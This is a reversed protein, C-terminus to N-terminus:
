WQWIQVRAVSITMVQHRAVRCRYWMQRLRAWETPELVSRSTSRFNGGYPSLPECGHMLSTCCRQKRRDTEKEGPGRECLRRWVRRLL